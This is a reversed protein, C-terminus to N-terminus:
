QGIRVEDNKKFEVDQWDALVSATASRRKTKSVEAKGIFNDDRYVSMIDGKKIGDNTGLNIRFTKNRGIRSIKGKEKIVSIFRSGAKNRANRAEQLEIEMRREKDKAELLSSQLMYIEELAVILKDQTFVRLKREQEKFIYSSISTFLLLLIVSVWVFKPRVILHHNKIAM